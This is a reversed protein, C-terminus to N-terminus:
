IHAYINWFVNDSTIDVTKHLFKKKNSVFSYYRVHRDDHHLVVIEPQGCYKVRRREKADRERVREKGRRDDYTNLVNLM